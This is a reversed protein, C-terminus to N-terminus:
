AAGDQRRRYECMGYNVIFDPLQSFYETDIGSHDEDQSCKNQSDCAWNKSHGTDTLGTMFHSTHIGYTKGHPRVVDILPELRAWVADSLVGYLGKDNM